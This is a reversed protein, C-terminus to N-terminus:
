YNDKIAGQSTKADPSVLVSIGKVGALVPALDM